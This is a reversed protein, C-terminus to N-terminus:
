EPRMGPKFKDGFGSNNPEYPADLSVDFGDAPIEDERGLAWLIGNLVLRRMSAEKFDYPHGLTTTFVRSEPKDGYTKTWAIPNQIPYRDLQGKEEKQSRLSKGELLIEPDGALADGGGHVHYLWSYAQFPEVGRLIPNKVADKEIMVQTLPKDGDDFHGHHTIWTQGLLERVSEGGALSHIQEPDNQYGWHNLGADEAFRFGHTSTRLAVIPKGAELYDLFHQFQEKTPRRYRIFMVLLDADDLDEMHTLSEAANPDIEGKENLSYGIVTEFGTERELIDAIMPMSEESRYEDDGTLFLVKTEDASLTGCLTFALLSALSLIKMLQRVYLWLDAM